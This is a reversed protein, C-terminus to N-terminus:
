RTRKNIHNKLNDYVNCYKGIFYKRENNNNNNNNNHLDYMNILKIKIRVANKPDNRINLLTM